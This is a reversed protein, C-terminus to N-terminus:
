VAFEDPFFDCTSQNWIRLTHNIGKKIQIKGSNV